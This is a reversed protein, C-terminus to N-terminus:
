FEPDWNVEITGQELNVDQIVQEPLWPILREKRDISGACSRVVMVDNSGTEMMHHVKGLLVKDLQQQNGDSSYVKLGELQHWYFDDEELSPMQDVNVAVECQCYLRAQERDDVGGILAILGKGHHKGKAIALPEWQNNRKIFFEKYGLFNEMPETYSHVKVWGKVGYVTTIKGIVVLKAPDVTM